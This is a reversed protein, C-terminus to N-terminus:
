NLDGNPALGKSEYGTVRAAPKRRTESRWVYLNGKQSRVPGM